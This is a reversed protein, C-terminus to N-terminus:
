SIVPSTGNWPLIFDGFCIFTKAGGGPLTDGVTMTLPRWWMDDIRGNSGRVGVDEGILGMPCILHGADSSLDCPSTGTMLSVPQGAASCAESSIFMNHIVGNVFAFLNANTSYFLTELWQIDATPSGSLGFVVPDIWLDPVNSPRQAFFSFGGSSSGNSRAVFRYALEDTSYGCHWAIQTGGTTRGPLVDENLFSEEVGSVSTPRLLITGDANLVGDIVYFDFQYDYSSLCDILFTMDLRSSYLACWSHAGSNARIIKTYDTWLDPSADGVNKVDAQDSSAVVEWGTTVLSDKLAFGMQQGGDTAGTYSFVNNVDFAWTKILTPLSM